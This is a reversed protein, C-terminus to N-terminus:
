GVAQMQAFEEETPFGRTRWRAPLWETRELLHPVVRLLVEWAVVQPQQSGQTFLNVQDVQPLLVATARPWSAMLRLGGQHWHTDASAAFLDATEQALYVELHPQQIQYRNLQCLRRLDEFSRLAEQPLTFAEWGRQGLILPECSLVGWEDPATSEETCDGIMSRALARLINDAPNDVVMFGAEHYPVLVCGTFQQRKEEDLVYGPLVHRADSFYTVAASSKFEDSAKARANDLAIRLADHLELQWAALQQRTVPWLLGGGVDHLLLIDMDAVWPTCVWQPATCGLSLHRLDSLSRYSNHVLMPYLRAQERPPLDSKLFHEECTCDAHDHLFQARAGAPTRLYRRHVPALDLVWRKGTGAGIVLAFATESLQLAPTFGHGRLVSLYTQAFDEPSESPDRVGDTTM